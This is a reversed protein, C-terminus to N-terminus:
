STNFTALIKLSLNFGHQKDYSLVVNSNLLIIFTFIVMRIKRLPDADDTETAICLTQRDNEKGSEWKRKERIQKGQSLLLQCTGDITALHIAPDSGDRMM